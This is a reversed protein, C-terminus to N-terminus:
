KKGWRSRPAPRIKSRKEEEKTIPVISPIMLKPKRRLAPTLINWLEDLCTFGKKGKVGVEEVLGILSQPNKKEFRYVRIIFTKVM